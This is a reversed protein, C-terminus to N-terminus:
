VSKKPLYSDIYIKDEKIYAIEPVIERTGIEDDPSRTIIDAIRLQTPQLNFAVIIAQRNGTCGAHVIGRLSGMVVINGAAIVEAGPNVDGIIVLNGEASLRQGSRVTGKHFKAIGEDTGNFGEYRLRDIEEEIEFGINVDNGIIDTVIHSLQQKELDALNRGKFAINLKTGSFFTGANIFKQKIHNIIEEFPQQNDLLVIIGNKSGKFIVSEQSM